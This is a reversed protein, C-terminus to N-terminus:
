LKKVSQIQDSENNELYDSPSIKIRDEEFVVGSFPPLTLMNGEYRFEQGTTFVEKLNSSNLNLCQAAGSFNIVTLLFDKDKNFRKYAVSNKENEDPLVWSFGDDSFDNDYLESRALYFRNLSAVYERMFYHTDYDLMFWELENNYDWERFQAFETGMFTTKKGPFTMIFLLACRMQLFKQYYTGSMKDIFSKKGHVVEDHSIPLVYKEKFAYTIPFNLAKHEYKRYIPDFSLYKFLDNAFGMNWKLDFGLGGDNTEATVSGLDGAEEAITIIDPFENKVANNMKKLFAIGELSEKGGYYNKIWEDPKRDYDLYIMSAVADFRIGDIHFERLYYMVSSILFSQVEERGLDFYRTGWTKSEKRDAGQYEYLPMGDFEYLGWEDKPFHAPVFDLIVGIFNKHLEDILYKLDDPTGFRSTPAFYSCVQYGWSGDYPHEMVPLFEVHTYGMYKIYPVLLAALERYSLYEGNEKRMFSGLHMEYVNIPQNLKESCRNMRKKMWVEDNWIFKSSFILSAGDDKGKSFLAYPDGKYVESEGTVIRYKYASILPKQSTYILEYVGKETKRKMQMGSKWGFADSVVFVADANPSWVRFVYTYKGDKKIVSSGLYDYTKFNTGQHFLYSALDCGNM